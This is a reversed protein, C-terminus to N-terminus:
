ILPASLSIRGLTGDPPQLRALSGRNRTDEWIVKGGGANRIRDIDWEGAAMVEELPQRDYGSELLVIRGAGADHLAACTAAVFERISM